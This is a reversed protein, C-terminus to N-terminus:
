IEGGKPGGAARRVVSVIILTQKTLFGKDYIASALSNRRMLSMMM